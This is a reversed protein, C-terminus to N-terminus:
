KVQEKEQLQNKYLVKENFIVDRRRIIKHNEYDYLCYGFDNIGYGIFTCKKSKAELKTRNEKNIHVFAECGFPKLFLYNVKKGIWAEKPVCGDLSSSPGRNILYFITDVADVWFKLPLGAHLRMCRAREMITRSMRESVGNEEPTRPVTKERHIGHESCYSDFEKSCYEGGNNSRLCKLKKGIEIEVLDKWKKFTDFVNSKNKICYIWTKRTADDIFTVYYHSADLSSVQSPGWIDTHVLKLKKSKKEKGVRLFRVRKQKGYICNECFDLDVNKLGSLLNRSHLIKMGKDSMHRLRHHWLAADAEKSTLANVSNFIGNCLYLKGVKEGKAIVLAGKTVKWAKDIFTTVCGESDLQGTSILNKKLDPVHRVEKLLWQNGNQQKLLVKGMGVIKCPKEDGLHVQGFYGQVYDRFYKKDPTAHFSAGSDKRSKSHYGLSKGREMKRGRSEASLANGLTESSSKWGMEKSLIAGVVDDFKLTSSGSVSNSIAMVLGNWSEPFSCLFLLARVEDDFNVGTSSLHSTITNFDNLHDVVSGGKSMKMNFLRKMLFVKNSASPKEYLKVLAKILGETTTEKSINFSVLVTLCLQVTGLAKRDLLNWEENTMGTPMKIKGGLPLYLDKQYLYDEMQMKWFSFNQGNFKEVRFKGDEAM